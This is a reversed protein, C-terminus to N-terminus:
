CPGKESNPVQVLRCAYPSQTCTHPSFADFKPLARETRCLPLCGVERIRSQLWQVHESTDLFLKGTSVQEHWALADRKLGIDPRLNCAHM